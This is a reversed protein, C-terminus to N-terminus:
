SRNKLNRTLGGDDVFACLRVNVVVRTEPVVLLLNDINQVSVCLFCLSIFLTFHLNDNKLQHLSWTIYSSLTLFLCKAYIEEFISLLSALM